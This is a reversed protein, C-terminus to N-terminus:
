PLFSPDVVNGYPPVDSVLGKSKMWATVDAYEERSTPRAPAFAPMAFGAGAPPFQGKRLILDRYAAPEAALDRVARNYARYFGRIAAAKERAAKETFIIVGPTFPLSRSDAVLGAGGTLAVQMMPEPLCAAELRGALLMELRAPLAAASVLDVVAADVGAEELLRDTVYSIISNELLGVRVKKGAPLKWASLSRLPSKPPVLLGFVGESASTARVPFGRAAANVANVLDSVTGDIAGTQLASERYVQNTFMHLEVAAGEARFYGAEEAVLVPAINVAPMLGFKLVEPGRVAQAAASQPAILAFATLFALIVRGSPFAGRVPLIRPLRLTPAKRNAPVKM